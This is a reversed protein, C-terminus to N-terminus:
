SSTTSARRGAWIRLPGDCSGRRSRRRIKAAEAIKRIPTNLCSGARFGGTESAFLLESERMPGEPLGEVHGRLVEVLDLPLPIRLRRGTKATERVQGMTESRRVLLVGEGWLVDPKDGARRLPRLGPPRRGTVLGLAFM